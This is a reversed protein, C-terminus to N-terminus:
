SQQIDNKKKLIITGDDEINWVLVDGVNWGASELLEDPFTLLLNESDDPDEELHLTYSKNM